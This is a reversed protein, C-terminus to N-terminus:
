IQGSASQILTEAVYEISGTGLNCNLRWTLWCIPNLKLNTWLQSSTFDLILRRSINLNASHFSSKLHCWGTSAEIPQRIGKGALASRDWGYKKGGDSLMVNNQGVQFQLHKKCSEDGRHVTLNDQWCGRRMEWDVQSWDENGGCKAGNELRRERGEGGWAYQSGSLGINSIWYVIQSQLHYASSFLLLSQLIKSNEFCKRPSFVNKWQLLIISMVKCSKKSQPLLTWIDRMLPPRMCCWSEAAFILSLDIATKNLCFRVIGHLVVRHVLSYCAICCLVTVTKNM